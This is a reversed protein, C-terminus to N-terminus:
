HSSSVDSAQDFFLLSSTPISSGSWTHSFHTRFLSKNAATSPWLSHLFANLINQCEKVQEIVGPNQKHSFCYTFLDLPEAWVAPLTHIQIHNHKEQIKHKTSILIEKNTNTHIQKYKHKNTPIQIYKYTNAHM